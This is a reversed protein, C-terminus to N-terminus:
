HTYIVRGSDYGAAGTVKVLDGESVSPTGPTVVRVGASGSGDSLVYSNPTVSGAVVRGFACVFLGDMLPMKLAHNQAFLPQLTTSGTKFASSLQVFREGGSTTGLVGNATIISGEPADIVGELRIGAARGVDSVYALTGQKYYLVCDDLTVPTGDPLAKAAGVREGDLVGSQFVDQYGDVVYLKGLAVNAGQTDIVQVEDLSFSAAEPVKSVQISVYRADAPAPLDIVIDGPGSLVSSLQPGSGESPPLLDNLNTTGSGNTWSAATKFGDGRFTRFVFSDGSAYGNPVSPLTFSVVGNYSTFPQGVVATGQPGSASGSVGFSRTSLRSLTWTETKLGSSTTNVNVTFAQGGSQGSFAAAVVAPKSSDDTNTLSTLVNVSAVASRDQVGLVVKNVTYHGSAPTLNNNADYSGLDMLVGRNSALNKMSWFVPKPAGSSYFLGEHGGWQNDEAVGVPYLDIAPWWQVAKAWGVRRAWMLLRTGYEAQRADGMGGGSTLVGSATAMEGLFVEKSADGNDTMVARGVGNSENLAWNAADPSVNSFLYPHWAAYDFWNKGISAYLHELNSSAGNAFGGCIVKASPDTERVAKATERLWVAYLEMGGRWCWSQDPENNIEYYKVRDKFQTVFARVFTTFPETNLANYSIRVSGGVPISPTKILVQDIDVGVPDVGSSSIGAKLPFNLNQTFTYLNSYGGDPGSLSSVSNFVTFTNGHKRVTVWRPATCMWGLEGSYGYVTVTGNVCRTLYPRGQDSTVSYRFWNGADQYILVGTQSTSSASFQKARVSITFDGSGAITQYLFHGVENMPANVPYHLVGSGAANVSFSMPPNMWQWRSDLPVTSFNEEPLFGTVEGPLRTIEGSLNDFNYDVGMEYIKTQADYSIRIKSGDAPTKGHNWFLSNNRFKVRGSRDFQYHEAGDPSNILNDVRTWTRYGQGDNEDVEVKETGVIVPYHSARVARGQQFSTTVVENSYRTTQPPDPTVVVPMEDPETLFINEHGLSVTDSSSFNVLQQEVATNSPVSRDRMGNAWAPFFGLLCEVTFGNQVYTNIDDQLGNWNWDYSDPGNQQIGGWLIDYRVGRINANKVMDFQDPTLSPSFGHPANLGWFAFEGLANQTRPLQSSDAFLTLWAPDVISSSARVGDTLRTHADADLASGHTSVGLSLLVSSIAIHKLVRAFLAGLIRNNGARVRM